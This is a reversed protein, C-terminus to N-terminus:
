IYRIQRFSKLMMYVGHLTAYMSAGAVAWAAGHVRLSSVPIHGPESSDKRYTDSRVIHRRRQSPDSAKLQQDASQLRQGLNGIVPRSRGILMQHM